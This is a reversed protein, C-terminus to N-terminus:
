RESKPTLKSLSQKMEDISVKIKNVKDWNETVKEMQKMILTKYFCAWDIFASRYDISKWELEKEIEEKNMIINTHYLVIIPKINKSVFDRYRYERMWM